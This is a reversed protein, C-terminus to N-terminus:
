GREVTVIDDDSLILMHTIGDRELIGVDWYRTPPGGLVQSMSTIVGCLGMPYGNVIHEIYYDGLRINSAKIKRSAM